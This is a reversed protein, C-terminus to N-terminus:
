NGRGSPPPMMGTPTHIPSKIRDLEDQHKPLWENLETVRAAMGKMSTETSVRTVQTFKRLGRALLGVNGLGPNKEFEAFDAEASRLMDASQTMHKHQGRITELEKKIGEIQQEKYLVAQERTLQVQNPQM